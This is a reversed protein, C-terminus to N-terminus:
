FYFLLPSSILICLMGRPLCFCYLKSTSKGSCKEMQSLWRVGSWKRGMNSCISCTESVWKIQPWKESKEGGVRSGAWMLVKWKSVKRYVGTNEEEMVGVSLFSVKFHRPALCDLPLPIDLGLLEWWWEAQLCFLQAAPQDLLFISYSSAM